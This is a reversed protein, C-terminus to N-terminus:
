RESGPTRPAQAKSGGIPPMSLLTDTAGGLSPLTGDKKTTKLFPIMAFVKRPDEVKALNKM